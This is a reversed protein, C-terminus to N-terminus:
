APLDATTPAFGRPAFGFDRAADEHDFVQDRNMRDAMGPSWGRFRPVLRLATVGARILPVPVPVIRPPRGLAAFVREVMARCTPTESGSVTYIRGPRALALAARCADAVDEVHVPQRRGCAAGAVPVVGIRRILRAIEGVNRDGRGWILTPRLVMWAIGRRDAWAALREEAAVLRAAVEREGADASAARSVASTSSLAVIRRVGHTELRDFWNPLTWIPALAIWEPIETPSGAPPDPRRRSLAVVPRAAALRPLLADAVFSGAGLVGVPAAPGDAPEIAPTM